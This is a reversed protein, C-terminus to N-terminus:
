ALSEHSDQDGHWGAPACPDYPVGTAEVYPTTGGCECTAAVLPVDAESLGYTRLFVAHMARARADKGDSTRTGAIFADIVLPLAAVWHRGDM